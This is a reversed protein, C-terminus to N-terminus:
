LHTACGKLAAQHFPDGIAGSDHMRLRRGRRLAASYTPSRRYKRVNQADSRRERKRSGFTTASTRSRNLSAGSHGVNFENRVAKHGIVHVQQDFASRLVGVRERKPMLVIPLM